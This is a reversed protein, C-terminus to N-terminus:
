AARAMRKGWNTALAYAVIADAYAEFRPVSIGSGALAAETNTTDFCRDIFLYPEFLEMAQAMKRNRSDLFNKSMKYVIPFLFRPAGHNGVSQGFLRLFTRVIRGLSPAQPGATLHFVQRTRDTRLFIHLLADCVFDVPLVDLPTNPSGPIIRLMGNQILRLVPYLVNFKKTHGTRSDGVIIGPRFIAVPLEKMLGQVYTDAEFKTQEYTNSFKTPTRQEDELIRGGRNGSVYATSVYAVKELRGHRHAELAFEMVNRTGVYNRLRSEELSLNFEVCAASHVIHTVQNLFTEYAEPDLGFHYATVDGQIVTIRQSVTQWALGPACEALANQIRIAAHAASDARVLTIVDSEPHNQLIRSLLNEGVFGTAGTLFVIKKMM